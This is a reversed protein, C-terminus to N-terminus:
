IGDPIGAPKKKSKSNGFKWKLWDSWDSLSVAYKISQETVVDNLKKTYKKIVKLPINNEELWNLFETKYAETLEDSLVYDMEKKGSSEGHVEQVNQDVKTLIGPAWQSPVTKSAWKETIFTSM